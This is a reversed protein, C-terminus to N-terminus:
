FLFGNLLLECGHILSKKYQKAVYVFYADNENKLTVLGKALYTKDQCIITEFTMEENFENQDFINREEILFIVPVNKYTLTNGTDYYGKFEMTKNGITLYYYEEYNHLHFTKDIILSSILMMLGFLPILMSIILGQPSTIILVGNILILSSSVRDLILSLGYSLLLYTLLSILIKKKNLLYHMFVHIFLLILYAYLSDIYILYPFLLSLLIYIICIGLHLKNLLLIKLACLTTLTLLCNILSSLYIM